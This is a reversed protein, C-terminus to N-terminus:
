IDIFVPMTAVKIEKKRPINAARLTRLVDPLTLATM